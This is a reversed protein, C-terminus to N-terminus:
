ETAQGIHEWEKGFQIGDGAFLQIMRIIEEADWTYVGRAFSVTTAEKYVFHLNGEQHLDRLLLKQSKFNLCDYSECSMTSCDDFGSYHIAGMDQWYYTQKTQHFYRKTTIIFQESVLILKENYFYRSLFRYIAISFMLTAGVANLSSILRDSHHYAKFAFLLVIALSILLEGILIRRVRSSVRNGLDIELRNEGWYYKIKNSM